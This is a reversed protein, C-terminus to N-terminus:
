DVSGSEADSTSAAGHGAAERALGDKERQKRDVWAQWSKGAATDRGTFKITVIDAYLLTYPGNGEEDIVQIFPEPTERNRNFIYGVIESGDKKVITTNGRYDFALDIVRELTVEEGPEPAWGQLSKEETMVVM